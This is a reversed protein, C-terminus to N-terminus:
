LVVLRAWIVEGHNHRRFNDVKWIQAFYLVPIPYDTLLVQVGSMIFDPSLRSLSLSM